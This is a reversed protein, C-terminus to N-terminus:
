QIVNVWRIPGYNNEKNIEIQRVDCKQSV